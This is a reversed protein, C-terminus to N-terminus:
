IIHTHMHRIHYTEGNESPRRSILDNNLVKGEQHYSRGRFPLPPDYELLLDEYPHICSCSMCMEFLYSNTQGLLHKIIQLM